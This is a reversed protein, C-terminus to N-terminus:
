SLGSGSSGSQHEKLLRLAKKHQLNHWYNKIEVGTKGTAIKEAIFTWKNGYSSQMEAILREEEETFKVRKIRRRDNSSGSNSGTGTGTNTNNNSNTQINGIPEYQDSSENSIGRFATQPENLHTGSNNFFGECCILVVGHPLRGFKHNKFNKKWLRKCDRSSMRPFQQAVISWNILNPSIKGAEDPKITMAENGVALCFETLDVEIEADASQNEDEDSTHPNPSAESSHDSFDRVSWPTINRREFAIRTAKKKKRAVKKIRKKNVKRKKRRTEESSDSFGDNRKRFPEVVVPYQAPLSLSVHPLSPAVVRNVGVAQTPLTTPQIRMQTQYYDIPPLTNARNFSQSVQRQQLSPYGMSSYYHTQPPYYPTRNTINQYSHSTSCNPPFGTPQYSLQNAQYGSNSGYPTLTQYNSEYKRKYGIGRNRLESSSVSDYTISM